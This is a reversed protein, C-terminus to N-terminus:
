GAGTEDRDDAPAMRQGSYVKIRLTLVYTMGCALAAAPGYTKGFVELVLAIAALPVGIVAVLASAIGVVVFITPDLSASMVGAGVLLEATLRGSVGGLVMAPILMGASGGSGITFGTTLMKGVLVAALVPVALEADGFMAAVTHEGVGLLDHPAIGLGLWAGIAIAAVGLGGAAGHLVSPARGVLRATHATLLGFGLAIPASVAVAVLVTVGYEALTYAHDHAPAVFLPGAGLVQQNLAYGIMAAVLAYAFKRYIIRDGYLIEIAFLAAAFPAGLLTGVAAAIGALQYTRLEAERRAQFVRACGAGLAEGAVVVPAEIGGSGGTGLTLATALLKKGALAFAPRDYRPQPDDGAHEYTCHFNDLAVDLGDGATQRWSPLRVLLGRLLGGGVLLGSLGAVAVPDPGRGDLWGHLMAGAEHVVYRLAACAAWVVVSLMAVVVLMRLITEM